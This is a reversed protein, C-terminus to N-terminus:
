EARSSAVQAVSDDSVWSKLLTYSVALIVPGIFIGLIGCAILGGIVGALILVLPLKAGKSILLPRLLNDISGALVSFILLVTGAIGHGSWYLWVVSPALVLLPGLQALCLIFAVATLLVASPVGTVLLGMGSIAAQALATLVVALVVGRIAKAALIATDEGKQGALRRAFSRLGARCVDGKAYLIIVIIMTLLFNVIATGTSGARAILWQLSKQAYPEVASMREEPSLAGFFAWRRAIRAGAVPIRDIWKPPSALFSSDFSKMSEAIYGSNKVVTMVAFMLPALVVVFMLLAMVIVVLRERNPRRRKLWERMPWTAIVVIAGWIIPVVFPRVIWFTAAILLCICLVSFVTHTVDRSVALKEM